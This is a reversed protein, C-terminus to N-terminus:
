RGKFFNLMENVTKLRLEASTLELLEQKQKLDIRLANAVTYSYAEPEEAHWAEEFEVDGFLRLYHLYARFRVEVERKLSGLIEHDSPVDTLWVIRGQLYPKSQDLEIIKFKRIGKTIINFRGDELKQAHVISAETGISFPVTPGGVEKGAQILVVGFNTEKELCHGIMQRYRQEFIHIPLVTQPFLVTNLPFLPLLM